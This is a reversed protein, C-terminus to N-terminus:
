IRMDSLTKKRHCNPCLVQLKVLDSKRYRVGSRHKRREPTIHDLDFFSPNESKLGCIVCTLGLKQILFMRAKLKRRPQPCAYCHYSLGGSEKKDPRFNSRNLSKISKCRYCRRLGHKILQKM